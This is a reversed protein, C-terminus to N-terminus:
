TESSMCLGKSHCAYDKRCWKCAARPKPHNEPTIFYFHKWCAARKNSISGVIKKSEVKTEIEPVQDDNLEANHPIDFEAADDMVDDDDDDIDDMELEYDLEHDSM